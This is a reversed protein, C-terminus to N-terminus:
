PILELEHAWMCWAPRGKLHDWSVSPAIQDDDIVTGIAGVHIVDEEYPLDDCVNYQSTARVRDDIKFKGV